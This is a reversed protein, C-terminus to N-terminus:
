TLSGNKPARHGDLDPSIFLCVTFCVTSMVKTSKKMRTCRTPNMNQPRAPNMGWKPHGTGTWTRVLSCVYRSVNTIDSICTTNPTRYGDLDPGVCFCITCCVPIPKRIEIFNQQQQQFCIMFVYWRQHFAAGAEQHKMKPARYGDLDPSHCFCITFFIAVLASVWRYPLCVVDM